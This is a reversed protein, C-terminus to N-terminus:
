GWATWRTPSAGNTAWGAGCSTLSEENLRQAEVPQGESWAVDGLVNLVYAIGVEDGLERRLDLCAALHSTRARIATSGSPWAWTPGRHGRGLPRRDRPWAALSQEYVACHSRTIVRRM